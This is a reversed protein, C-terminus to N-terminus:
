PNSQFLLKMHRVSSGFKIQACFFKKQQNSLKNKWRKKALKFLLSYLFLYALPSLTEELKQQKLSSWRTVLPTGAKRQGDIGEASGTMLMFGLIELSLFFSYFLFDM